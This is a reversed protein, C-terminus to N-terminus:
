SKYEILNAKILGIIEDETWGDKEQLLSALRKSDDQNWSCGSKKFFPELAATYDVPLTFHYTRQTGVQEPPYPEFAPPNGGAICRIHMVPLHAFCYDGVIPKTAANKVGTIKETFAALERFRTTDVGTSNGYLNQLALAVEELPANGSRGGVGNVAVDIAIAGGEVAALSNATAMGYDNHCHVLVSLGSAQIIKRVLETMRSPVMIGVSDYVVLRSVGLERLPKVISLLRELPTRTADILGVGVELSASRAAAIVPELRSLIEHPHMGYLGPDSLLYDSSPALVDVRHLKHEAAMSVHKQWRNTYCPILATAKISYGAEQILDAVDLCAAVGDPLGIEIEPIGIENLISILERKQALTVQSAPMQIGERLTTDRLLIRM